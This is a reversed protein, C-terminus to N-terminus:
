LTYRGPRNYSNFPCHSFERGPRTTAISIHGPPPFGGRMPLGSLLVQALFASVSNYGLLRPLNRFSSLRRPRRLGKGEHKTTVVSTGPRFQSVGWNDM